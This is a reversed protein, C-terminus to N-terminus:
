RSRSYWIMGIIIAMVLVLGSIVIGPSSRLREIPTLTPEPSPGTIPASSWTMIFAVIDNIDQDSLPGGQEQSWAPMATGAVGNAITTKIRLDPRISPWAKALTAGVRGEGNPGHCVACNEAYLTAGRNPDGEINPAPTIPPRPTIAPTPLPPRPGGTEWSLIFAVLAEIEEDSLPGGNKQSWAPMPSGAVGNEIVAKVRLDPRISPWNKALTAGVRGEGNPGHCVACNEAYLRAGLEIQEQTLGQADTRLYWAGWFVLTIWLALGLYRFRGRSRM